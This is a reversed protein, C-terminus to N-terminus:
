FELKFDFWNSDFEGFVACYISICPYYTLGKEIKMKEGKVDDLDFQIHWENCDLTIKLAQGKKLKDKRRLDKDDRKGFIEPKYYEIEQRLNKGDKAYGYVGRNGDFYYSQTDEVEYLYIESNKDM